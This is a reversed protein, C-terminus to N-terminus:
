VSACFVFNSIISTEDVVLIWYPVFRFSFCVNRESNRTHEHSYVNFKLKRQTQLTPRLQEFVTILLEFGVRSMINTRTTETYTSANRRASCGDFSDQWIDLRIRLKLLLELNFWAMLGLGYFSFFKRQRWRDHGRCFGTQEITKYRRIGNKM